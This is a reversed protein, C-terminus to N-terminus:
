TLVERRRRGYGMRDSAFFVPSVSAAIMSVAGVIIYFWGVGDGAGLYKQLSTGSVLIAIGTGVAIMGLFTMMGRGAGPVVGAGIMLLGFLLEGIALWATHTWLPTDTHAVSMQHGNIGTQALAVAGVVTFFIGIALAILQAPSWPPRDVAARRSVVEDEAVGEDALVRRRRLM